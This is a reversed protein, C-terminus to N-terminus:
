GVSILEIDFTLTANPGIPTGPQGKDGYGLAPPLVLRRKGGARMGVVGEDWGRIVDGKGITFTFDQRGSQRSTDFQVGTPTIWGTYQVAVKDGTKATAGCGPTIDGVQLGDAQPALTVALSISDPVAQPVFCRTPTPAPTPPRPTPTPTVLSDEGCATIGITAATAVVGLLLRAASCARSV